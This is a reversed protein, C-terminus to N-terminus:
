ADDCGDTLALMWAKDFAAMAEAPSLGFGAVGTQVDEGYLACWRDGDVFVRPRYLVSPRTMEDQVIGRARSIDFADRAASEVFADANALAFRTADYIADYTDSM